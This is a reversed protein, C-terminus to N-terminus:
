TRPWGKRGHSPQEASRKLLLSDFVWIYSFMDDRKPDSADLHRACCKITFLVSYLLTSLEALWSLGTITTM